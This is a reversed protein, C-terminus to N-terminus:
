RKVERDEPILDLRIGSPLAGFCLQSCLTVKLFNVGVLMSSFSM